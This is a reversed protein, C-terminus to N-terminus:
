EAAAAVRIVVKGFREEEGGALLAFAEGAESMKFVRDVVPRIAHGEYFSATEEFRDRPGNLVGKLTVSRRLALVNVNIQRAAPAEEDEKKGTPDGVCNILGGFAVCEFSKRLTRAGGTEFIIDAGKGGTKDLVPLQWEWHTQSNIGHDAGLEGRARELQSDSTSTIIAALGCAKAIQLGAMAVGGTGQLLVTGGATTKTAAEGLPRTGNICMWATVAATPLCAAEEDTLYGPTAVLSEGPFCRYEALVGPLPFGLGTALDAETVPGTMHSQNLIAMVRAGPKFRSSKSEVVVGCM